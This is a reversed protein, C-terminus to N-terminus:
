SLGNLHRFRAQRVRSTSVVWKQSSVNNKQDIRMEDCALYISEKTGATNM